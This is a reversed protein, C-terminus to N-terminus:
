FAGKERGAQRHHIAYVARIHAESARRAEEASGAIIANVIDEHQKMFAKKEEATFDVLCTKEGVVRMLTDMLLLAMHNGSLEAIFRHLNDAGPPVPKVAQVEGRDMAAFGQRVAELDDKLKLADEESCRDAAQAALPPELLLKRLNAAFVQIAEADATGKLRNLFENELSPLILRTYADESTQELLKLFPFRPNRIVMRGLIRLAEDKLPRLQITLFGKGAGRMVALARHSPVRHVPESYDFYDRFVQAEAENERSKVAKSAFLARRAFLDRLRTRIELDESIWEAIIDSAGALADDRSMKVTYPRLDIQFVRQGYILKALPELGKERAASARTKRKTKYPLYLDELMTLTHASGLRSALEDTLLNRERLSELMNGRRENVKRLQEVAERLRLLVVEDMGGSVEKRYRAIFPVTAGDEFLAAVKRIRNEPLNLEAALFQFDSDNM